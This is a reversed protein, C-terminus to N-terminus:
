GDTGRQAFIFPFGDCEYQGSCESGSRTLYRYRFTHPEHRKPDPCYNPHGEFIRVHGGGMLEEFDAARLPAHSHAVQDM